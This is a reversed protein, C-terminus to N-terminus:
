NGCDGIGVKASCIAAKFEEETGSANQFEGTRVERSVSELAHQTTSSIFFLVALEVIGFLLMLFPVGLIAFEIATTGEQNHKLAQIKIIARNAGNKFHIGMSKGQRYDKKALYCISGLSCRFTM